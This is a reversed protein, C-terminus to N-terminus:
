ARDDSATFPGWAEKLRMELEQRGNNDLMAQSDTGQKYVANVFEILDNDGLEARLRPGLTYYITNDERERELYWQEVLVKELVEKVNGGHLQKHGQKERVHVGIRKLAGHLEQEELRCGPQLLIMSAVVTVFGMLPLLDGSEPRTEQPLVSVLIYGKTAGSGVSQSASTMRQSQTNRRSKVAKILEVMEMGFTNRLTQQAQEFAGTFMRNKRGINDMNQFMYKSLDARKVPRKKVNRCLMFRICRKVVEDQQSEQLDSFGQGVGSVAGDTPIIDHAVQREDDSSVAYVDPNRSRSTAQRQRRQSSSGRGM